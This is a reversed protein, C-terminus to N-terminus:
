LCLHLSNPQIQKSQKCHSSPAPSLADACSAWIPLMQSQVHWQTKIDAYVCVCVRERSTALPLTHLPSILIPLFINCIFLKKKKELPYQYKISIYLDLEAHCHESRRRQFDSFSVSISLSVSLCLFLLIFLPLFSHFIPSLAAVRRDSGSAQSTGVNMEHTVSVSILIPEWVWWDPASGECSNCSYIFEVM